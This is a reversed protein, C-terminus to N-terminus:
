GDAATPSKNIRYTEKLTNDKYAEECITEASPRRRPDPDLMKAVLRGVGITYMDPLTIKDGPWSLIKGSDPFLDTGVNCYFSLICGFSWIDATDTYKEGKLVEPAMHIPM